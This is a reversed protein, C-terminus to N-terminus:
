ARPAAKIAARSGRKGCEACGPPDSEPASVGADPTPKLTGAALWNERGETAGLTDTQRDEYRVSRRTRAQVKIRPKARNAARADGGALSPPVLGSAAAERPEGEGQRDRPKRPTRPRPLPPIGCARAPATPTPVCPDRNCEGDRGPGLLGEVVLWTPMRSGPGRGRHTRAGGRGRARAGLATSAPTLGRATREGCTDAQQQRRLGYAALSGTLQPDRSASCPKTRTTPPAALPSM